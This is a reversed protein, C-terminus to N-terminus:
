LPRREFSEMATDRFYLYTLVLALINKNVQSSMFSNLSYLFIINIVLFVPQEIESNGHPTDKSIIPNLYFTTRCKINKKKKTKKTKKDTAKRALKVMSTYKRKYETIIFHHKFQDCLHFPM